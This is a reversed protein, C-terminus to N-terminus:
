AIPSLSIMTCSAWIPIRTAVQSSSIKRSNKSRARRIVSEQDLISTQHLANEAALRKSAAQFVREPNHSINGLWQSVSERSGKKFSFLVAISRYALNTAFDLHLPLVIVESAFYIRPVKVDGLVTRALNTAEIENADAYSFDRDARRGELREKLLSSKVIVSGLAFVDRGGDTNEYIRVSEGCRQLVWKWFPLSEPTTSLIHKEEPIFDDPQPLYRGYLPVDAYRDTELIKGPNAEYPDM